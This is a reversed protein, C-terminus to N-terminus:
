YLVPCRQGPCHVCMAHPESTHRISCPCVISPHLLDLASNMAANLLTERFGPRSRPTMPHLHPHQLPHQYPRPPQLPSTPPTQGPPPSNWSTVEYTPRPPLNPKYPHLEQSRIPVLQNQPFPPSPVPHSIPPSRIEEVQSFSDTQAREVSPRTAQSQPQRKTLRKPDGTATPLKDHLVPQFFVPLVQVPGSTSAATVEIKINSMVNSLENADVIVKRGDASKEMNIDFQLNSSILIPGTQSVTRRLVGSSTM